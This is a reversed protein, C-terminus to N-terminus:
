PALNSEDIVTWVPHGDEWNLKYPREDGEPLWGEAMGYSHIISRALSAMSVELLDLSDVNVGLKYRAGKSDRFSVRVEVLVKSM